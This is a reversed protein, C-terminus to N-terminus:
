DRWFGGEYQYFIKKSEGDLTSAYFYDATTVYAIHACVENTSDWVDGADDIVPTYDEDDGTNFWDLLEEQAWQEAQSLRDCLVFLTHTYEREGDRQDIVVQFLQAM